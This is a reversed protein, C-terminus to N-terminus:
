CNGASQWFFSQVAWLPRVIHREELLPIGDEYVDTEDSIPILRNCSSLIVVIDEDEPENNLCQCVENEIATILKEEM